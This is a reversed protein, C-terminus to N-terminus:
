RYLPMIYIFKRFACLRMQKTFLLDSFWLLREPFVVRQPLVEVDKLTVGLSRRSCNATSSDMCTQSNVGCDHARDKYRNHQEIRLVDLARKRTADGRAGVLQYALDRIEEDQLADDVVAAVAVAGGDLIALDM